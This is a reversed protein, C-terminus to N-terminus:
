RLRGPRLGGPTKLDVGCSAPGEPLGGL